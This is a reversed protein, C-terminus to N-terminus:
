SKPVSMSSMTPLICCATFRMRGWSGAFTSGCITAPLVSSRGTITRATLSPPSGCPMASLSSWTMTGFSCDISPTRWTSTVPARSLCTTIVGSSAFIARAPTDGAAIGSRSRDLPMAM